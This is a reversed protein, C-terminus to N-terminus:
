GRLGAWCDRLRLLVLYGGFQEPSAFWDNICVRGLHFPDANAGILGGYGCCARYGAQRVAQRAVDPMRDPHGYPYAYWDIRRGLGTELVAKSVVLEELAAQASLADMATHTQGHSGVCFGQAVVEGLESWDMFPYPKAADWWPMAQTGVYDSVAFVTASLGFAAMAPVADTKFDRYGDDFTIALEGALAEGRELKGVIDELTAARFHRAFFRCWDRFQATPMTMADGPGDGEVRHFAVVVARAGLLRRGLGLGFVVHGLLSKARSGLWSRLRSAGGSLSM